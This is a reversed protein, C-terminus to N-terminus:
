SVVLSNRDFLEAHFTLQITYNFDAPNVGDMTASFVTLICLESPSASTLAQTVDDSKYQVSTRGMIKPLNYHRRMNVVNADRQMPKVTARQNALVQQLTTYVIADNNPVLGVVVGNNADNSSAMLKVDVAFVRYRNYFNIWQPFGIPRTGVGTRDPDFLSNLNYDRTNIAFLSTINRNDVYRLHVIQKDAAVIGRQVSTPFSIRKRRKSFKKTRRKFIRKRKRFVM